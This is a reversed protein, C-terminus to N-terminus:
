NQNTAHFKHASILTSQIHHIPIHILTVIFHDIHYNQELRHIINHTVHQMEKVVLPNNLKPGIIKKTPMVWEKMKKMDNSHINRWHCPVLGHSVYIYKEMVHIVRVDLHGVGLVFGCKPHVISISLNSALNMFWPPFNNLGRRNPLPLNPTPVTTSLASLEQPLQLSKKKWLRPNTYLIAFSPERSRSEWALHTCREAIDHLYKKHIRQVYLSGPRYLTSALIVRVPFSVICKWSRQHINYNFPQYPLSLIPCDHRLLTWSLTINM